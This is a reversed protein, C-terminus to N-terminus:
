HTGAVAGLLIIAALVACVLGFGIVV